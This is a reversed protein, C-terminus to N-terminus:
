TKINNGIGLESLRSVLFIILERLNTGFDIDLTNIEFVWNVMERNRRGECRLDRKKRRLEKIALVGYMYEM